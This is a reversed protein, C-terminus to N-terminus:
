SRGEERERGGRFQWVKRETCAPQWPLIHLTMGCSYWACSLITFTFFYGICPMVKTAKICLIHFHLQLFEMIDRWTKTHRLPFFKKKILQFYLKCSSLNRTKTHSSSSPYNYMNCDWDWMGYWWVLIHYDPFSVIPLTQDEDWIIYWVLVLFVQQNANWKEESPPSNLMLPIPAPYGTWQMSYTSLWLIHEDASSLVWYFCPLESNISMKRCGITRNNHISVANLSLKQCQCYWCHMYLCSHM